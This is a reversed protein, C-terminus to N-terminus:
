IIFCRTSRVKKNGGGKGNGTRGGGHSTHEAWHERGQGREHVPTPQSPLLAPTRQPTHQTGSERNCGHAPSPKKPTIPSPSARPPSAPGLSVTPESCCCPLGQNQTASAPCWRGHQPRATDGADRESATLILGYPVMHIEWQYSLQPRAEADLQAPLMGALCLPASIGPTLSQSPVQATVAWWPGCM